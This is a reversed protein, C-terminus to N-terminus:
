AELKLAKAVLLTIKQLYDARESRTGTDTKVLRKLYIAHAETPDKSGTTENFTVGRRKARMYIYGNRWYLGTPLEKKRM